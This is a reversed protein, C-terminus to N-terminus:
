EDTIANLACLQVIELIGPLVVLSPLEAVNEVVDGLEGTILVARSEDLRFQLGGVRIFLLSDETLNLGIGDWQHSVNESVVNDLLEEIVAVLFVFLQERALHAALDQIQAQLHVAASDHLFRQLVDQNLLLGRQHTLKLVMDHFADLILVAVVDDLLGNLTTSWLGDPEDVSGEKVLDLM